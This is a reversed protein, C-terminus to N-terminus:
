REGSAAILTTTSSSAPITPRPVEGLKRAVCLLGARLQHHHSVIGLKGLDDGSSAEPRQRLGQTRDLQRLVAALLLGPLPIGQERNAFASRLLGYLGVEDM